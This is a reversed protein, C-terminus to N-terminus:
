FPPADNGFSGGGTSWPDDAHGGAPAQQQATQTKPIVAVHRATVDYSTRTQGEKDEWDRAKVTGTVLVRTGKDVHDVLAEAQREWVTVRWWTTGDDQWDNGQKRRHNEAVSLSLVAKGGSTFRMDSSGVNGVIQIEAM